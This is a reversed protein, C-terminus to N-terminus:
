GKGLRSLLRERLALARHSPATYSQLLARALIFRRLMPSEQPDLSYTM